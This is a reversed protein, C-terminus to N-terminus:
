DLYGNTLGLVLTVLVSWAEGRLYPHPRPKVCLVALPILALRLLSCTVLRPKSWMVVVSTMMKGTVDTVNFVAMLLVPMWDAMKCSTVETIVGPYLSVTVYFTLGLSTM